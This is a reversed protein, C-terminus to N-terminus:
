QWCERWSKQVGLEWSISWALFHSVIGWSWRTQIAPNSSDAFLAGSKKKVTVVCPPTPGDLVMERERENLSLIVRGGLKSRIGGVGGLTVRHRRLTRRGVISIYTRFALTPRTVLITSYSVVSRIYCPMSVFGVVVYGSTVCVPDVRVCFLILARWIVLFVLDSYVLFGLSTKWPNAREVKWFVPFWSVLRCIKELELTFGVGDCVDLLSSTVVM